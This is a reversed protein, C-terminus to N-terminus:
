KKLFKWTAAGALLVSASIGGILLWDLQSLRRFGAEKISTNEEPKSATRLSESVLSDKIERNDRHINGFYEKARELEAATPNSPDLFNESAYKKLARDHAAELSPPQNQIPGMPLAQKAKVFQTQVQDEYLWNFRIKGATTQWIVYRGMGENWREDRIPSSVAVISGGSFTEYKGPRIMEVSNESFLTFRENISGGLQEEVMKLSIFKGDLETWSKPLRGNHQDKYAQIAMALGHGASSAPTSVSSAFAVTLNLWAIAILFLKNMGAM